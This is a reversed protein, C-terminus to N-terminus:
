DPIKFLFNLIISLINAACIQFAIFNLLKNNFLLNSIPYKRRLVPAPSSVRVGVCLAGSGLDPADVLKAVDACIPARM